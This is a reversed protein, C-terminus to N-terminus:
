QPPIAFMSDSHDLYVSPGSLGHPYHGTIMTLLTDEDEPHMGTPEKMIKSVLKPRPFERNSRKWFQSRTFFAICAREGEVRRASHPIIRGLICVMTGPEYGFRLNLAPVEFAGNDYDGVTLLVDYAWRMGGLDRHIPTERNCILQLAHLLTSWYEIAQKYVDDPEIGDQQLIYFLHLSELWFEEHIAAM